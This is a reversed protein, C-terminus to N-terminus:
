FIHGLTFVFHTRGERVPVGEENIRTKPRLNFGVDFRVPGLPTKFRLGPGASHTINRLSFDSPREFVNGADYFVVGGLDGISFSKIPVRYELNGVTLLQGGGPPGAEDLGFGRLTTSGGAFYRETIPLEDTVGYPIKWGIRSSLALVGVGSQSQFTSQNFLSVFNVESGWVRSAIQFTTTSFTGRKPDVADDRDDSVFSAGLRAIQIVGEEDPFRRVIPNVKIDELDVTQYSATLLFNRSVSLRKRVQLALEVGSTEFSPQNRTEVTFTGFGDLSERNLLRPEHYTTQFQREHVGWRIRMTLSRNGGLINNHSIDLTARPGAYEKVGVGPTVVIHKAEEIQILVTRTEGTDRDLPVIEVHRFLGTAYLKQQAELIKELDFPTFENLGSTRRIFKAATRTNGVVLIEGINYKRGEVIQYTVIRSGTEPNRDTRAEVRVDPYGKRYYLRTLVTRQDEAVAPSYFDGEKLMIAARLDAEAITDNGIFVLREIRYQTNEIIEFVIDIEHQSSDENHAEVFAAEFGARRYMSQITVVDAAVLEDSFLGRNLFGGPQVKIRQQLQESSFVTNGNFRVSKVRHREGPNISFVIRAPNGPSPPTVEPGEVIAEFYGKQQLYEIVRARGERILDPDFSGEEFLPLLKRIEDESIQDKGTNIVSVVTGQGPTVTVRLNVMNTAPDYDRSAAVKTNLVNSDLFKQEIASLGKDIEPGSYPDGPSVDFVSLLEDPPFIAEAGQITIGGIRAKPGATANLDITRLRLDNDPGPTATLTLDFYGADELIQRTQETIEQVRAESFKQGVPLRILTSLPRDLLNEPLLRFTSFFYHPTVKFTLRTGDGTSVADVEVTRYHGTDFLAQIAARVNEPQIVDGSKIPVRDLDAPDANESLHIAAATTGYHSGQGYGLAPLLLLMLLRRILM